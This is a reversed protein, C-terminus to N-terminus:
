VVLENKKLSALARLFGKRDYTEALLKKKGYMVRVIYNSANASPFYSENVSSLLALVYLFHGSKPHVYISKIEKWEVFYNSFKLGESYVIIVGDSWVKHMKMLDYKRLNGRLRIWVLRGIGVVLIFILSLFFMNLFIEIYRSFAMFIIFLTLFILPLSVIFWALFNSFVNDKVM